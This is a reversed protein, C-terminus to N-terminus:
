MTAPYHYGLDVPEIDAEGETSTTGEIVEADPDGTDVCLSQATQGPSQSLYFAQTPDEEPGEQALTVFLPDEVLITDSELECSGPQANCSQTRVIDGIGGELDVHSLTLSTAGVQQTDLDMVVSHGLPSANFFCISNTWDSTANLLYLAGAKDSASNGTLTCNQLVPQAQYRASIAGGDAAQNEFFLCNTLTPKGYVACLGGGQGGATNRQFIVNEIEPKSGTSFCYIGGGDGDAHNDLLICDEITPGASIMQIGGGHEITIVDGSDPDVRLVALGNTITFGKLLTDRREESSFTVVAGGGRGDIITREAGQSSRVTIARGRFRIRERYTGAQVVCTDRSASANICEQITSFDADGSKSVTRTQPGQPEDDGGCGAVCVIVM